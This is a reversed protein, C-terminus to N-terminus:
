NVIAQYVLARVRPHDDVRAPIVQTMYVVVLEEAPDVWYTSHYAGGWGYEGVSGHAGTAGLDLTVQFGLGFGAGEWGPADELASAAHDVTMLRVSAPSLIRVGDLEGGNLLMQLFRAYDGATSVLGAGGSFSVRPGDLYQGQTQMGSGDPARVLDGEATHGYVTALRGAKEQPVYFHTDGMELPGLLREELFRDLPQGSAVEVVAGLIDTAYGYVWAEGPQAPFPLEAMRRATERIPATRHGFYWGTIGAAEWQEGGPGGGYGVGAMHTLLDRVTIARRAPVVAYGGASDPVAVTTEMFEPLFRGVRDSLLLRGEEILIMAAVSVVAKSQSAIRFLADPAVTDRAERDRMGFAHLYATHGRRAVLVVGGPLRGDAVYRDLAAGLRDLRTADMGVQAPDV